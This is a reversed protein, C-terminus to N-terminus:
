ADPTIDQTLDVDGGDVQEGDHGTLMQGLTVEGVPIDVLEDFPASTAIMDEETRDRGIALRCVFSVGYLAVNKTKGKMSYLNEVGGCEAPSCETVGDLGFTSQDIAEEIAWALDIAEGHPDRTKGAIVVFCGFEHNGVKQGNPARELKKAGGYAVFVAPAKFSTKMVEDMDINGAYKEATRVGDVAGVHAVIADLVTRVTTM